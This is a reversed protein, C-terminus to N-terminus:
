LLYDDAYPAFLPNGRLREARGRFYEVMEDTIAEDAIPEAPRVFQLMRILSRLRNAMIARLYVPMLVRRLPAGVPFRGILRTLRPYWRLEVPSLAPNPRRGSPPWHSLGLRREIEGVFAVPDDRLLEYPLLILREGFAAEYLDILHDYRWASAGSEANGPGPFAADGGARVYQSYGSMMVSRFGRIVLLVHATPFLSALLECVEAQAKPNTMGGGPKRAVGLEGAHIHPTSLVESSTVRCRLGPPPEAGQTAIAFVDRFGAIGRRHYAIEPHEEFWLKLFHSGAKPYGIHILHEVM